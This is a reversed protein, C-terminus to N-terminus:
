IGNIDDGLLHLEVEKPKAEKNPSYYTIMVAKQSKDSAALVYLDDCDSTSKVEQALESLTAYMCFPYYGKLPHMTYYDFLGNFTCPRANYHMMMDLYSKQCTTMAAASYAAGRIGIINEISSIFKDTWGELYNWENLHNETDTYGANDLKKRVIEADRIIAETTM